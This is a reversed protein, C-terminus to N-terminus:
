YLQAPPARLSFFTPFNIVRLIELVLVFGILIFVSTSTNKEQNPSYLKFTNKSHSEEDVTINLDHGNKHIPYNAPLNNLIEEDHTSKRYNQITLTTINYSHFKLILILLFFAAVIISNLEKHRKLDINKLIEAFLM